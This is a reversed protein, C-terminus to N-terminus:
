NNVVYKVWKKLYDLKVTRDKLSEFDGQPRTSIIDGKKNIVDLYDITKTHINNSNVKGNIDDKIFIGHVDHMVTLALDGNKLYFIMTKDTLFACCKHFPNGTDNYCLYNFNKNASKDPNDKGERLVINYKKLVNNILSLLVYDPNLSFRETFHKVLNYKVKKEEKVKPEKKKGFEFINGCSSIDEVKKELSKVPVFDIREYDNFFSTKIIEQLQIKTKGKGKFVIVSFLNNTKEEKCTYIYKAVLNNGFLTEIFKHTDCNSKSFTLFWKKISHRNTILENQM